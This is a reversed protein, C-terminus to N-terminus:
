IFILIYDGDCGQVPLIFCINFHSKWLPLIMVRMYIYFLHLNFM